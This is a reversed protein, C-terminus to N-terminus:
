IFALSLPLNEVDTIKPIKQIKESCRLCGENIYVPTLGRSVLLYM